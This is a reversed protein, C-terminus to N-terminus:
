DRREVKSMVQVAVGEMAMSIDNHGFGSMSNHWLIRGSTAELCFVHGAAGAFVRGDRLLVTVDERSTASILGGTKLATTWLLAGTSPDIAAVSGNTGLILPNM